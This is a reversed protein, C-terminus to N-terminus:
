LIKFETVFRRTPGTASSITYKKILNVKPYTHECNQLNPVITLWLLWKIFKKILESSTQRFGIKAKKFLCM